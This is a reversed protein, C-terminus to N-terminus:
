ATLRRLMLRIMTIHIIAETTEPLREYDCKLWRSRGRETRFSLRTEADISDIVQRDPGPSGTVCHKVDHLRRVGPFALNNIGNTRHWTQTETCEASNVQKTSPVWRM